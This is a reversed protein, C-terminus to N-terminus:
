HHHLSTQTRMPGLASHPVSYATPFQEGEKEDRLIEWQPTWPVPSCSLLMVPGQVRPAVQTLTCLSSTHLTVSCIMRPVPIFSEWGAWGPCMVKGNTHKLQPFCLKCSGGNATHVLREDGSTAASTSVFSLESPVSGQHHCSGAAVQWACACQQTNISILTPRLEPLVWSQWPLSALHKPLICRFSKLQTQWHGDHAQGHGSLLRQGESCWARECVAKYGRVDLLSPTGVRLLLFHQLYLLREARLTVCFAMCADTNLRCMLRVSQNFCCCCCCFGLIFVM